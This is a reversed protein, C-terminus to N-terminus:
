GSPTKFLDLLRRNESFNLYDAISKATTKGVLKVRSLEDLNTTEFTEIDEFYSALIKAKEKGVHSIGLANILRDFSQTKSREIEDLLEGAQKKGLGIQELESQHLQYLDLPSKIKGTHVLTSILSQGLGKINM